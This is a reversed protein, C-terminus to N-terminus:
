AFLECLRSPRFPKALFQCGADLHVQLGPSERPYGSMFVVRLEPHDPLVCGVLEPGTMVPMDVDVLLFHILESQNQFFALAEAGNEAELTEFGSEKLYLSTMRRIRPDDDVILITRKEDPGRSDGAPSDGAPIEGPAVPNEPEPASVEPFLLKFESGQGPQSTVEIKGGHQEVTAAVMSLGLGVGNEKTTFYPDFVQAVTEASMGKGTDAVIVAVQSGTESAERIKSTSADEVRTEIRIDGGGPMAERANLILNMLTLQVQDAAGLIWSASCSQLEIRIDSTLLDRFMHEAKELLAQLSVRQYQVERNRCFALLQGTMAQGKEASDILRDLSQKLEPQGAAKNLGAEAYGLIVTLLNNFDHALGGTLRGLAETKRSQLLQSNAELLKKEVRDRHRLTLQFLWYSLLVFISGGFFVLSIVRNIDLSTEQGSVLFVLFLVYGSLFFLVLLGMLYWCSRVWPSESFRHVNSRIKFLPVLALVFVFIGTAVLVLDFIPLEANPMKTVPLQFAGGSKYLVSWSQGDRQNWDAAYSVDPAWTGSVLGSVAM